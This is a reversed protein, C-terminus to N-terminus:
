GLGIVIISKRCEISSDFSSELGASSNTRYKALFAYGETTVWFSGPCNLVMVLLAKLRITLSRMLWRRLGARLVSVALALGSVPSCGSLCSVFGSFPISVVCSSISADRMTLDTRRCFISRWRIWKLSAWDYQAMRNSSLLRFGM